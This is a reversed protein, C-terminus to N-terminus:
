VKYLETLKDNIQPVSTVVIAAIAVINLILVLWSFVRMKKSTSKLRISSSFIISLVVLPISMLAIWWGKDSFVQTFFLICNYGIAICSLAFAFFLFYRKAKRLFDFNIIGKVQKQEKAIDRDLPAKCRPCTRHLQSTKTFEVDKGCNKCIVRSKLEQKQEDNKIEISGKEKSM